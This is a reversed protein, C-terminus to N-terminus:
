AKNRQRKSLQSQVKGFVVKSIIAEHNGQITKGNHTLTGIYFRNNLIVSLSGPTWAKGQRTLLGDENLEAAIKALSMGSLASKFIRKVTEAENQNVEIHKKDETYQYGYPTIGAPKDGSKAKQTRGRALKRAITMREWQDLMGLMGTIMFNEPDNMYKYVDFSPEDISIINAKANIVAKMIAAQAFISRWLRSTNHVIICDGEKITQILLQDLAPRNELTGSVGADCFLPLAITVNHDKAYKMIAQRQVDLGGGREAQSDTSVRIYGYYACM